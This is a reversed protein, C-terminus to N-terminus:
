QAVPWGDVYKLPSYGLRAEWFDYSVSKNLYHYYLIDGDEEALVGQGGPAFTDGNSAYVTEGGGDVLDNGQKDLFPGQPSDSRGVRIRYEKGPFNSLFKDTIDCCRGWSFWLYYYPEHYSLYSGEIPHGGSPDGCIGNANKRAPFVAAPERALHRVDSRGNEGPSILDQGLPIQWIGSWFSGFNLYAQGNDAVFVSADITNSQDLPYEDSGKGKGSQIILGHDVWGGPGPSASSAVGIASNRCGANSVAYYCYFRDGVQITTPAWPAKRDGKPIVSDAPLVSGTKEWPGALSSAQHIAIHEGVSYSYYTDGVRLLSPDHIRLDTQHTAPYSLPLDPRRRPHPKIKLAVALSVLLLVALLVTMKLCRRLFLRRIAIAGPRAADKGPQSHPLGWPLLEYDGAKGFMRTAFFRSFGGPPENDGPTAFPQPM